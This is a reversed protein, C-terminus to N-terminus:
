QRIFTMYNIGPNDTMSSMEAGSSGSPYSLTDFYLKLTNADLFVFTNYYIDDVKALDTDSTAICRMTSHAKIDSLNEYADIAYSIYQTGSGDGTDIIEYAHTSSIILTEEIVMKTLGSGTYVWSGTFAPKEASESDDGYSFDNPEPVCSSFVLFIAFLLIVTIKKM